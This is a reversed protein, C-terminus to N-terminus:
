EKKLVFPYQPLFITNVFYYIYAFIVLFLYIVNEFIFSVNACWQLLGFFAHKKIILFATHVM